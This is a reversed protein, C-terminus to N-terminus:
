GRSKDFCVIIKNATSSNGCYKTIDNKYSEIINKQYEITEVISNFSITTYNINM